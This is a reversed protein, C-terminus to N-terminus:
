GITRRVPSVPMCSACSQRAVACRPSTPSARSRTRPSAGSSRALDAAGFADEVSQVLQKAEDWNM